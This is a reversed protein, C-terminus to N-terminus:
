ANPLTKSIRDNIKEMIIHAISLAKCGDKLTVLPSNNYKIAQAFTVLEEQIANLQKVRPKHLHVSKKNGDSDVELNMVFPNWSSGESLSVVETKKELFDISVYADKQFVRTKRM